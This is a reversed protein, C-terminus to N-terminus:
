ILKKISKTEALIFLTTGTKLPIYPDIVTQMVNDMRIAFVNAEYKKRCDLQEM